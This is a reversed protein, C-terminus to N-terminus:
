ELIMNVLQVVDLVNIMGDNNIDSAWFESDSPVENSIAFNVIIVADIVNIEGDGNVDGLMGLFVSGGEGHSLIENGSSDSIITSSFELSIETGYELDDSIFYILKAIEIM